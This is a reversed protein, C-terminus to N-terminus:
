SSCSYDPVRNSNVRQIVDSFDRRLNRESYKESIGEFCYSNVIFCDTNIISILSQVNDYSFFVDPFTQSYYILSPCNFTNHV